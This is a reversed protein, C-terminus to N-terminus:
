ASSPMRSGRQDRPSPSTYLLCHRLASAQDVGLFGGGAEDGDHLACEAIAFLVPEVVLAVGDRPSEKERARMWEKTAGDRARRREGRERARARTRANGVVDTEGRDHGDCMENMVCVKSEGRVAREARKMARTGWGRARKTRTEKADGERSDCGRSQIRRRHLRRRWGGNVVRRHGGGPVVRAM